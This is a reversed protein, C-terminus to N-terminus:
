GAEDARRELRELRAVVPALETRIAATLAQAAGPPIGGPDRGQAGPPTAGTQARLHAFGAVAAVVAGRILKYDAGLRRLLQGGAGDTEAVLAVLLHECGVYNHGLMIAEIVSLELANALSGDLRNAPADAPDEGAPSEGAPRETAPSEGAPSEPSAAPLRSLEREIRRPEIEVARLVQLALNGGEALIGHLLHETGVSGARTERARGVGLKIADRARTTFHHLPTASNEDGLDGPALRRMAAVRRVSQELARQCIASVPVGTEKVAEALEDPLYVNIKPM